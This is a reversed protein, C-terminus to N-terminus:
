LMNNTKTTQWPLTLYTLSAHNKCFEWWGCFNSFQFNPCENIMRSFLISIINIICFLYFYSWTCIVMLQYKRKFLLLICSWQSKVSHTNNSNVYGSMRMWGKQRVQTPPSHPNWAWSKILGHAEWMKVGLMIEKQRPRLM